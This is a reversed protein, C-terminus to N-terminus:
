RKLVGRTMQVLRSVQYVTASNVMGSSPVMFEQLFKPTGLAAAIVAIAAWIHKSIIISLALQSLGVQVVITAACQFLKQCLAKYMAKDSDMLGICGIPFAMRLVFMEVGRKIFQMYLIMLLIIAVLFGILNFLGTSLLSSPEYWKWESSVGLALRVKETFDETIDSLFGYLVPFAMATALAKFFSSTLLLPDADADGDTWLVYTEFGKKLFKLIIMAVAMGLCLKQVQALATAMIDNNYNAGWLTYEVHLTVQDLNSFLRGLFEAGDNIIPSFLLELIKDM